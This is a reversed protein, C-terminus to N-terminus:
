TRLRSERGESPPSRGATKKPTNFATQWAALSGAIDTGTSCSTCVAPWSAFAPRFQIFRFFQPQLDAPALRLVWLRKEAQSEMRQRPAIRRSREFQEARRAGGRGLSRTRSIVSQQQRDGGPRRRPRARPWRLRARPPNRNGAQTARSPLSARASRFARRAGGGRKRIAQLDRRRLRVPRRLEARLELVRLPEDRSMDRSVAAKRSSRRAPRCNRQRLALGSAPALRRCDERAPRARVVGFAVLQVNRSQRRNRKVVMALELPQRLDLRLGVHDPLFQRRRQLRLAPSEARVDSVLRTVGTLWHFSSFWESRHLM